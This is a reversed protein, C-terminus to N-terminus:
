LGWHEAYLYVRVRAHVAHVYVVAVSSACSGCRAHHKESCLSAASNRLAFPVSRASPLTSGAGDGSAKGERGSPPSLRSLGESSTSLVALGLTEDAQKFQATSAHRKIPASLQPPSSIGPSCDATAGQVPYFPSTSSFVDELTQFNTLRQFSGVDSAFGGADVTGKRGHSSCGRAQARQRPNGRQQHEQQPISPQGLSVRREFRMGWARRM